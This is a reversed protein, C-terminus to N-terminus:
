FIRFIMERDRSGTTASGVSRADSGTAADSAVDSRAHRGSEIAAAIPGSEFLVSYERSNRRPANKTM